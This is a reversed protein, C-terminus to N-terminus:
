TGTSRLVLALAEGGVMALDVCHSENSKHLQIYGYVGEPLHSCCRGTQFQMIEGVDEGCSLKGMGRRRLSVQRLQECECFGGRKRGRGRPGVGWEPYIVVFGWAIADPCVLTFDFLRGREKGKGHEDRGKGHEDRGKGHKDSGRIRSTVPPTPM